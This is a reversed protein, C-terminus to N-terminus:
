KQLPISIVQKLLHRRVQHWGLIINSQIMNGYRMSDDVDFFLDAHLHREQMTGRTELLEKHNQFSSEPMQLTLNDQASLLLDKPHVDDEGIWDLSKLEKDHFNVCYCIRQEM